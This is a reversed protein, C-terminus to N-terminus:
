TRRPTRSPVHGFRRRYEKAFTTVSAFGSQGAATGVSAGLELMRRARDLKRNRLYSIPTMGRFSMFANQLTRLSVGCHRALLEVSLHGAHMEVVGDVRKLFYPDLPRQCAGGMEVPSAASAKGAKVLRLYRRYSSRAGDQDGLAGLVVSRDYHLFEQLVNFTGTSRALALAADLESLAERHHGLTRMGWALNSRAVIEDYTAGKSQLVRLRKRIAPIAREARGLLIQLREINGLVYWAAFEYGAREAVVRARMFYALAENADTRMPEVDKPDLSTLHSRAHAEPLRSTARDFHYAGLINLIQVRAYDDGSADALKVAEAVLSEIAAYNARALLIAIRIRIAFAGYLADGHRELRAGLRDLIAEAASYRGQFYALEARWADVRLLLADRTPAVRLAEEAADLERAAESHNGQRMACFSTVLCLEVRQAAPLKCDTQALAARAAEAAGRLDGARAREWHDRTSPPSALPEM